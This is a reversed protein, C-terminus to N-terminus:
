RVSLTQIQEKGDKNIASGSVKDGAKLDALQIEKRAKMVKVDGLAFTEDKKGVKIVVTKTMQDISVISGKIKTPKISVKLEPKAEAKAVPSAVAAPTTAPLAAPADAAFAPLALASLFLSTALSKKM